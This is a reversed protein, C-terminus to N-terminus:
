ISYSEVADPTRRLLTMTCRRMGSTFGSSRPSQEAGGSRCEARRTQNVQRSPLGGGGAICTRLLRAKFGLGFQDRDKKDDVISQKTAM